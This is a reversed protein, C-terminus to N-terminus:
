QRGAGRLVHGGLADFPNKVLEVDARHQGRMGGLGDPAADEVVLVPDALFQSPQPRREGSSLAIPDPLADGGLNLHEPVGILHSRNPRPDQVFNPVREEVQFAGEEIGNGIHVLLKSLRQRCMVRADAHRQIRRNAEAGPDAAVLIAIRIGVGRHQGLRQPQLAPREERAISFPNALQRPVEALRGAQRLDAIVQGGRDRAILM